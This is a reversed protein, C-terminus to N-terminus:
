NKKECDLKLKLTHSKNKLKYYKDLKKHMTEKDKKKITKTKKKKNELKGININLYYEAASLGMCEPKGNFKNCIPYKMRRPELFCKNGYKQKMNKRSQNGHPKINKWTKDKNTKSKRSAM